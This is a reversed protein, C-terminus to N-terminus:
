TRDESKVWKAAVYRMIGRAYLRELALGGQFADIVSTFYPVALLGRFRRLRRAQREQEVAARVPVQASLDVESELRLGASTTAREWDEHSHIHPTHWANALARVDADTGLDGILMDEVCVLRGGPELVEALCAITADLDDAHLLAEISVVCDFRGEIPDSYEQHRFDCRDAVGVRLAQETARRIQFASCGIGTFRVHHADPRRAWALITAGFGCGVDLVHDVDRLGFRSWLWAHLGTKGASPADSVSPAALAKHLELREGDRARTLRRRMWEHRALREYLSFRDGKVSKSGPEM